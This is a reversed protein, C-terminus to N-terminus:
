VLSNVISFVFRKGGGGGGVEEELQEVLIGRKLVTKLNQLDTVSVIVIGGPRNSYFPISYFVLLAPVM